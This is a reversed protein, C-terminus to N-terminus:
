ATCWADPCQIITGDATEIVDPFRHREIRAIKTRMYRHVVDKVSNNVRNLPFVAVLEKGPFLERVTDIAPILDSDGSM